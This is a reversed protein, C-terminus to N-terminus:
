GGAAVDRILRWVVEAQPSLARRARRALVVRREVRPFIPLVILGPPVPRPIALHPVVSIGLGAAVMRFITTAHGVEQALKAQVGYKSLVEDILRRSGAGRDLLILPENDLDQWSLSDLRAFRHSPACVLEFPETLIPELQLEAIPRPENILGFDVEGSMVSGLVYEQLRDYVVLEWGPHEAQCRAICTPLLNASLTPSSAVRVRGKQQSALGQVDLLLTDLDDLVRDLRLALIHGAATLTVERATRELLRVGLRQELELIARSVAPQTLALTEGAKTFNGSRAIAQFVRLQRLSVHM